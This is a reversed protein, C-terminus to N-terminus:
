IWIGSRRRSSPLLQQVNRPPRNRTIEQHARTRTWQTTGSALRMAAAVRELAPIGDITSVVAGVPLDAASDSATIVVRGEIIRLQVPWRAREGTHRTDVVTGHGDRADAVLQRLADRQGDRTNAAYALQIQPLLRADWDVGTEAWYPYFHRFVNWAVVVGALRTDVDRLDSSDPVQEVAARLTDLKASLKASAAAQLASLALRVRARLGSGLDITVHAGKM